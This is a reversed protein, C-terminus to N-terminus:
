EELQTKKLALCSGGDCHNFAAHTYWSRWAYKPSWHTLFFSFTSPSIGRDRFPVLTFVQPQFRLIWMFGFATACWQLLRLAETTLHFLAVPSDVSAGPDALRNYAGTELLISPVQVQKLHVCVCVCVCVGWLLVGLGPGEQTGHDKILCKHM